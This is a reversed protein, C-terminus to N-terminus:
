FGHINLLKKLFTKSNSDSISIDGFSDDDSTTQQISMEGYMRGQPFAEALTEQLLLVESDHKNIRFIEFVSALVFPHILEFPFCKMVMGVRPM